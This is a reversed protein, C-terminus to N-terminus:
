GSWLVSGCTHASACPPCSLLHPFGGHTHRAQSSETNTTTDLSKYYSIVVEAVASM